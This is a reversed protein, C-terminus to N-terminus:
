LMFDIDLGPNSLSSSEVSEFSHVVKGTFSSTSHAHSPRAGSARSSAATIYAIEHQNKESM